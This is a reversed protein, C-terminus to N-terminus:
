CRCRITCLPSPTGLRVRPVSVHPRAAWGASGRPQSARLAMLVYGLRPQYTLLYEVVLYDVLQRPFENRFDNALSADSGLFARFGQFIARASDILRAVDVADIVTPIAGLTVFQQSPARLRELAAPAQDFDWGLEALFDRLAGPTDLAGDLPQLAATLEEALM